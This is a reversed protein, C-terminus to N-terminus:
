APVPVTMGAFVAEGAIEGDLERAQQICSALVRHPADPWMTAFETTLITDTAAAEVLARQYHPHADAERTAVFRTGLRAGAAGGAHVRDVLRAAPDARFFEVLDLRQAGIDVCEDDDLFPVLINLGVTRVTRRRVEDLLGVLVPPPALPFAAMGVAGAVAVALD